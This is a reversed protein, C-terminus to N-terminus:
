RSATANSCAFSRPTARWGGCPRSRWRRGTRSSAGDARNTVRIAAADAHVVVQYRDGGTRVSRGGGALFADAIAVLADARAERASGPRERPFADRRRAEGDGRERPSRGAALREHAAELAALVLAGGRGASPRAPAPKRRRRSRVGALARAARRCRSARGGGGRSVGAAAARAAVGDRPPRPRAPGARAGREGRAHACPGELLEARGRRVRGPDLPLEGLRRAVRVHERAVGTRDWVAVRGLARLVPLGM